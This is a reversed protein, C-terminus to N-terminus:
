VVSGNSSHTAEFGARDLWAPAAHAPASRGACSLGFFGSEGAAKRSEYLPCEARTTPLTIVGAPQLRPVETKGGHKFKADQASFDLHALKLRWGIWTGNPQPAENLCHVLHSGGTRLHRGDVACGHGSPELQWSSGVGKPARWTTWGSAGRFALFAEPRACRGPPNEKQSQRARRATSGAKREKAVLTRAGAACIPRGVATRVKKSRGLPHYEYGSRTKPSKVREIVLLKGSDHSHRHACTHESYPYLQNEAPTPIQDCWPPRCPCGRCSARVTVGGAQAAALLGGAAM